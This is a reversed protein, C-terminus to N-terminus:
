AVDDGGMPEDKRLLDAYGLLADTTTFIGVLREHRVVLASGLRHEAMHLLVNDLPEDLDVTYVSKTAVEGVPPLVAGDRLALIEAREAGHQSILGVLRDGDLVPLHRIEHEDFLRKAAELGAGAQISFPFPRMASKITPVRSM